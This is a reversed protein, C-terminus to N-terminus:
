IIGAVDFVIIRPYNQTVAWRLTGESNTDELSTVHLVRGGRGGTAFMGGGQAGPFARAAGDEECEPIDFDDYRAPDVPTPDVPTEGDGETSAEVLASWDSSGAENVSRVSFRYATGKTLGSIIVSRSQVTNKQIETNGELLRWSYSVAGEVPTWQFALTTETAKHLTVDRPVAPAVPTDPTKPECSCALTALALLILVTQKM